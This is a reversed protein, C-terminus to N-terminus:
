EAPSWEALKVQLDDTLMMPVNLAKLQEFMRRAVAIRSDDDRREVDLWFSYKSFQMDRDDDFTHDALRVSERGTLWVMFRLEDGDRYEEWKAGILPGVVGAVEVLTGSM